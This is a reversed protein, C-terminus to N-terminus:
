EPRDGMADRAAALAGHVVVEEGLEAAVIQYTGSLPPFVFREVEDRLPVFFAEEGALSVGGGIVIVEPALLTIMQAVAWGLTRIAM